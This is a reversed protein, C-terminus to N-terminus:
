RLWGVPISVDEARVAVRQEFDIITTIPKGAYAFSIALDRSDPSWVMGVPANTTLCYDLVDDTELNKIYLRSTDDIDGTRLWYALLRSDPSISYQDVQGEVIVDWKGDREIRILGYQKGLWVPVIAFKSNQSWIAQDTYQPFTSVRVHNVERNDRLDWLAYYLRYIAAKEAGFYIARTLDPSYWVRDTGGYARDPAYHNPFSTQLQMYQTSFPDFLMYNTSENYSGANYKVQLLLGQNLWGLIGHFQGNIGGPLPIGALQHGTRDFIFFNKKGPEVSSGLVAILNGDPSTAFSAFAPIRLGTELTIKHSPFGLLYPQFDSAVWKLSVFSDIVPTGMYHISSLQQSDLVLSLCEQTVM